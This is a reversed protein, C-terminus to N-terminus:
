PAASGEDALLAVSSKFPLEIIFRAGKLRQPPMLSIHGGHDEILRFITALGLGTGKEKTTFFPEFLRDAIEPPIGPGNDEVAIVLADKNKEGRSLTVDIRPLAPDVDEVESPSQIPTSMPLQLPINPLRDSSETSAHREVMADAANNLLNWIVQSMAERDLHIEAGELADDIELAVLIDMHSHRFLQLSECVLEEIDIPTPTLKRPRSYELFQSILENLREVERLIIGMLAGEDESLTALAQLMEVSGSISALPNRIEHAIAASLHGIAAMRESLKAQEELAKIQSLDQFIIIQGTLDGAANRLASVSFGLYLLEGDPHTYTGELRPAFNPMEGSKGRQVKSALDPFLNELPAGFVEDSRRGTIYEAAANFFIINMELDLTMLGSNLSALINENLARLERLDGQRREIETKAEGLQRALQGSSWALLFAFTINVMAETVITRANNVLVDTVPANPGPLVGLSVLALYFLFSSVVGAAGIAWRQSILFAGAIIPLYLTFLFVSTRLGGTTMVLTGSLLLDLVLQVHPLYTLDKFRQIVVAYVITLAYTSIILGLHLSNRPNSLDSVVQANTFIAGGLFLTVLAIRFLMLNKLRQSQQESLTANEPM